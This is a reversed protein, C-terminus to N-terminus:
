SHIKHYSMRNFWTFVEFLKVNFKSFFKVDQGQVVLVQLYFTWHGNFYHLVSIILRIAIIVSSNSIAKTKKLVPLSKLTFHVYQTGWVSTNSKPPYWFTEQSWRVLKWNMTEYQGVEKMSNFIYFSEQEECRYFM